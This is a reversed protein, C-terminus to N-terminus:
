SNCTGPRPIRLPDHSSTPAGLNLSPVGQAVHFAGGGCQFSSGVYKMCPVAACGPWAGRDFRYSRTVSTHAIQFDFPRGARVSSASLEQTIVEQKTDSAPEAPSPSKDCAGVIGNPTYVYGLRIPAPVALAAAAPRMSDLLPLAVTAGLGRLFTRRPLTQNLNIM